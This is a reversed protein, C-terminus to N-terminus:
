YEISLGHIVMVNEDCTDAADPTNRFFSVTFSDGPQFAQGASVRYRQQLLQNAQTFSWRSTQTTGVTIAFPTAAVGPRRLQPVNSTLVAVCEAPATGAMMLANFVVDIPSGSVYDVPLMWGFGFAPTPSTTTTMLIGSGSVEISDDRAAVASPSIVITKRGVRAFASAPEGGLTQADLTVTALKAVIDEATDPSGAPGTEGTAGTAGVAGTLGTNGPAGAEGPAGTAGTAGREGVAGNEGAAGAPGAAGVAGDEGDVGASATCGFSGFALTAWVVILIRM